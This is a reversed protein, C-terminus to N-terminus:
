FIKRHGSLSRHHWVISTQHPNIFEQRRKVIGKRHTSGSRPGVDRHLAAHKRSSKEHKARGKRYKASSSKREKQSIRSWSNAASRQGKKDLEKLM